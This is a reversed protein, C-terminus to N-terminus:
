SEIVGRGDLFADSPTPSAGRAGHGAVGFEDRFAKRARALLSQAATTGIALRRGIERVSLGEIYKWELADGYSGPLRDLVERVQGAVEARVARTEPDPPAQGAAPALLDQEHAEVPRFRVRDRQAQRWGAAMEHLIFSCMWTFLSAEGRYTKLKPVIKALTAQVLEEAQDADGGLRSLAFRYLRPAYTDFFSESARSDRRLLSRVLARDEAFRKSV